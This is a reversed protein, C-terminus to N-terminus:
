KNYNHKFYGNKLLKTSYIVPICLFFWMISFSLCVQGFLNFHNMSYDWVNWGLFLNVICGVNFEWFTIIMAGFFCKQWWKLNPLKIYLLYLSLCCIGGTISMTWHSYGRFGIELLTYLLAGFLFVTVFEETKNYLNQKDTIDHKGIYM